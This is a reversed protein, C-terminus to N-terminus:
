PTCGATVHTVYPAELANWVDLREAVRGIRCRQWQPVNRGRPRGGVDGSFSFEATMGHPAEIAWCEVDVTMLHAANGDIISTERWGTMAAGAPCRLELLGGGPGGIAKTRRRLVITQQGADWGGCVPEVSDIWGGRGGNLGVVVDGPLCSAREAAVLTVQAGTAAGVAIAFVM